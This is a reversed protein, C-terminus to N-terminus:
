FHVCWLFCFLVHLKQFQFMLFLVDRVFGEIHSKKLWGFSPCHRLSILQSIEPSWKVQWSSQFPTQQSLLFSGHILWSRVWTKLNVLWFGFILLSLRVRVHFWNLNAKKNGSEHQVLASPDHTDPPVARAEDTSHLWAQIPQVLWPCWSSPRTRECM